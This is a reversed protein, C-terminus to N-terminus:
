GKVTEYNQEDWDAYDMFIEASRLATEEKLTNIKKRKAKAIVGRLEEMKQQAQERSQGYTQVAFLLLLLTTLFRKM